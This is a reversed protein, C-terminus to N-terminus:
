QLIRLSATVWVFFSSRKNPDNECITINGYSEASPYNFLGVAFPGTYLVPLRLTKYLLLVVSKEPGVMEGCTFIEREAVVLHKCVKIM